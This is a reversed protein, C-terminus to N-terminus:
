QKNSIIDKLQKIAENFAGFTGSKGDWGLEGVKEEPLKKLIREREEQKTQKVLKEQELQWCEEIKYKEEDVARGDIYFHLGDTTYELKKKEWKQKM